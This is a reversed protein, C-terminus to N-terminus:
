EKKEFEMMVADVKLVDGAKCKVSKVVARAEAKLVNQMKMAEVVALQQGEEVTQGEKVAVSIVAGPMPCRLTNSHDVVVPPLLHRSLEQEHPTRVIVTQYTGMFAVEYGEGTSSGGFYQLAEKEGDLTGQLLVSEVPWDVNGVAVKTKKGDVEVEATDASTFNVSYPTGKPGGLVVVLKSTDPPSNHSIQGNISGDRATRAKHILAAYTVLHTLEPATLQVGQFGKPYNKPIFNTSYHGSAFEANRCVDRLFSLNHGLGKVVYADLAMCMNALSERRDAGYTILKSILPDYFMNIASGEDVGTDIRIPRKYSEEPSDGDPIFAAHPEQYRILPGTSPMFNRFPDEAYVRAEIAHGKFPVHPGIKLLGESLKRGAAVNLMEKVLDQGTIFETVPHEVQLRTNMELFYFSQDDACIFEVTGASQYGVAKCLAIAQRQMEKRTEPTLLCSPSEELVKQNRRQVSCEREPFACVNGHGDAVVQIEIHHGNDIYKEVLMRDDNFANMAEQKSLMFGSSVDADNRAIRMGKGGGGASAKMMVPYGIERAIKIAHDTDEIVGKYGPITNVKADSAIKKSMLKDGMAQIASSPPGIFAVGAEECKGAFVMNESLFGYGPHVAQAGTQKIAGMVKDVNLYSKLAQNPGICVAEDAMRVHLAGDDIDSYVAVTKVGMKRATRIVRCAIEGRNAILIKDFPPKTAAAALGRSSELLSNCLQRRVSSLRSVGCTFRLM